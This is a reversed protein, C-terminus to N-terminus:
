LQRQEVIRSYGALLKCINELGNPSTRVSAAESLKSALNTQLIKYLGIIAFNYDHAYYILKKEELYKLDAEESANDPAYAIVPIGLLFSRYILEADFVTMLCDCAILTNEVQGDTSAYVKVNTAKRNEILKLVEAHMNQNEGCDAIINFMSGQELLLQFVPLMERSGIKGGSLYVTPNMNLGLQAKKKVIYDIDPLTEKVPMGLVYVKDSPYGMNTLTNKMDVNEVIYGDAYISYFNREVSFRTMLALIPNSFRMKRKVAVAEHLLTPTMVLVVDPNFRLIANCIKDGTDTKKKTTTFHPKKSIFVSTLAFKAVKVRRYFTPIKQMYKEHSSAKREAKNRDGYQTEDITIINFDQHFRKFQNEISKVATNKVAISTVILVNSKDAM